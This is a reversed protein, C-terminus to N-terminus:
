KTTFSDTNQKSDIISSSSSIPLIYMRNPNISTFNNSRKLRSFEYIPHYYVLTHNNKISAIIQNMAMM